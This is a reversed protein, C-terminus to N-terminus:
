LLLRSTVLFFFDDDCKLLFDFSYRKQVFVISELVKNTLTEYSDFLPLILLDDFRKNETEMERVQTSNLRTNGLVFLFNHDKKPVSLWTNRIVDRVESNAPASMILVLLSSSRGLVPPLEKELTPSAQQERPSDLCKIAYGLLFALTYPGYKHITSPLRRGLMTFLGM